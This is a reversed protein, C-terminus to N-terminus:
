NLLERSSLHILSDDERNVDRSTHCVVQDLALVEGPSESTLVVKPVKELRSGSHFADPM